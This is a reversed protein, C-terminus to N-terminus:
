FSLTRGLLGWVESARWIDIFNEFQIYEAPRASTLKYQYFSVGLLWLLPVVNWIIFFVLVPGILIIPFARSEDLTRAMPLRRRAQQYSATAPSEAPFTTQAM